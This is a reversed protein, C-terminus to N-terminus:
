KKQEEQWKLQREIYKRFFYDAKMGDFKDDYWMGSINEKEDITLENKNLDFPGAITLYSETTAIPSSVEKDKEETEVGDAGEYVYNARFIYFVKKAGKYKYEIKKIFIMEPTTEEEEYIANVIYGEALSIQSRLDAPFIKEKGLKRLDEYLSIRYQQDNAIALFVSAAVPRNNKILTIAASKKVFIEKTRLFATIIDDADKQKFYGLLEILSPIEYIFDYEESKMAKVQKKALNILSPKVPLLIDMTVQNSDIMTKTLSVIALGMTTDNIYNLLDPYLTKTLELSDHLKGFLRYNYDAPHKKTALLEKLLQYSATTKDAAIMGLLYFRTSDIAKNAKNYNEQIFANIKTQNGPSPNKKLLTEVQVLLKENVSQYINQYNPYQLTAKEMLPMIDKEMFQVESLADYALQFTASDKSQLSTFLNDSNNELVLTETEEKSVRFEEFFRNTNKEDAYVLPPTTTLVYMTSGNLLLRILKRMKSTKNVLCLERGSLGGNKVVSFSLLSDSWNNMVKNKWHSYISDIGPAWYYKNLPYVEINYSVSAFPDHGFYQVEDAKFNYATSDQKKKQIQGPVWTTFSKDPAQQLSWAPQKFSTMSFSRLFKDAEAETEDGPEYEATVFYSNNARKVVFGTVSSGPSKAIFNKGAYGNISTDTIVPEEASLLKIHEVYNQFFYDGELYENGALAKGSTVSYSIGSNADFWSYGNMSIMAASEKDLPAAEIVPKGPFLVSFGDTPASFLSWNTKPIPTSKFSSFYQEAKETYLNDKKESGVSLIYYLNDKVFEQYRYYSNDDYLCLADMGKLGEYTISKKSMIRGGATRMMGDLHATIIENINKKRDGFTIKGFITMFISGGGIDYHYVIKSGQAGEQTKSIGPLQYQFGYEENKILQWNRKPNKFQYEDASIRKQSFIPEVVWGKKRLLAIIGKNGALHGAGVAAFLTQGQMISDMRNAMVENRDYLFIDLASENFFDNYFRDISDINEKFYLRHVPSEDASPDWKDLLNNIKKVKLGKSLAKLVEGKGELDELGFIKKGHQWAMEYLFADMFTNMSETQKKENNILRNVFYGILGRKDDKLAAAKVDKDAIKKIKELDRTAVQESWDDKEQSFEGSMYAAIVQNASDPNFELAFAEAQELYFYLSDQFNFAKKDSVHMTGFLFSPKEMGNKQIRWLLTQNNKDQASLNVINTFIFGLLFLHYFSHRMLHNRNLPPQQKKCFM